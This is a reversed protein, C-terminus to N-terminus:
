VVTFYMYGCSFRGSEPVMCLITDGQNLRGSQLLEELMIFISASGTNGKSTLNTFWREYPIPFGQEQMRQFVKDRFYESSYHPLFWTVEDPTLGHKTSLPILTDNIIVDLITTNLLKADQKIPFVDTQVAHLLDSCERWGQLSGDAQKRAGAYMCPEFRHAQSLMDIWEVKLNLRGDRPQPEVLCAAAGDSLMWRLFDAQFGLHPQHELDQELQRCGAFMKGKLFSSVLESSTAIGNNCSGSAVAMVVYKLASVGALCIGSTTVVEMPKGETLEGHVMVGHGPLIQDPTSTGCSLLEIKSYPITRKCLSRVATAVLEANTHTSKGTAPDSAYYRLQIGNNRLIIKRTRSPLADVMGLVQEMEDNTVPQNPLFAAIDTIFVDM